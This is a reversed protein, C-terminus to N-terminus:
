KVTQQHIKECCTDGEDSKKYRFFMSRRYEIKQISNNYSDERWGNKFCELHELSGIAESIKSYINNVVVGELGSVRISLAPFDKPIIWCKGEPWWKYGRQKLVNYLDDQREVLIRIGLKKATKNAERWKETQKFEM